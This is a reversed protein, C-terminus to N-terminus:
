CRSSMKRISHSQNDTGIFISHGVGQEQLHSWDKACCKQVGVSLEDLM